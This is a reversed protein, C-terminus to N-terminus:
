FKLISHKKQKMKQIMLNNIIIKNIKSKELLRFKFM